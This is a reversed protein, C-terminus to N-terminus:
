GESFYSNTLQSSSIGYIYIHIYIYPCCLILTGFWRVLYLNCQALLQGVQILRGKQTKGCWPLTEGAADPDKRCKQGYEMAVRLGEMDIIGRPQDKLQLEQEKRQSM